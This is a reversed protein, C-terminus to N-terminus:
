NLQPLVLIIFLTTTAIPALPRIHTHPAFYYPNRASPKKQEQIGPNQTLNYPNVPHALPIQLQKVFPIFEVQGPGGEDGFRSADNERHRAQTYRDIINIQCYDSQKLLIASFMKLPAEEKEPDEHFEVGEPLAHDEEEGDEEEGLVLGVRSGHVM